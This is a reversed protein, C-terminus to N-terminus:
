INFMKKLSMWLKKKQEVTATDNQLYSTLPPATLYSCKNYPQVQYHPITFPLEIEQTTIGFMLCNVPRHTDKLEEATTPNKATNIIAVDSMSLKCAELMKSLFALSDDDIYTNNEDKILISIFKKNEGLFVKGPQKVLKPKEQQPKPQENGFVIVDAKYLDALLIDPLQIDKFSM